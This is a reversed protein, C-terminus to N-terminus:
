ERRREEGERGKDQFVGLGWHHQTLELHVDVDVDVELDIKLNSNVEEGM